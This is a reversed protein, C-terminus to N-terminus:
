KVFASTSVLNKSMLIDNMWGAIRNLREVRLEPHGSRSLDHSAGPFRVFQTKKGQRKLAIFLQEGQEIPCRLDEEGHLILLPTEIQNVYALPSHKWLRELDDWANGGIQDETFFYGIDSVGYFSIWNSISRQTVAAKFRNTHGVIWNTMFGGYSGGTVGLKDTDIYHYHATVYDVLEMVDMYDRGGYDGRCANVFQQGYGHSGRPNCYMVAYGQAALLQFEHMFSNVYMAHPGGHIEVIAPVKDGPQLGVPPIIWGQVKGGDSAEFWFSEPKSLELEDWLLANAKTLQVEDLSATDLRYLEGPMLDNAAVLIMEQDNNTKAFQIVERGGTTIVECGGEISFKGIHVSGETTILSYISAGDSSFVPSASPGMKMDTVASNGLHLDLEGMLCAVEGTNCNVTYLKTTTANFYSHDSALFAIKSGDPSYVPKGISYQSNTVRRHKNGDRDVIFLDNKLTLDPDVTEDDVLKTTYAISACDPSWAFDTVDYEGSTISTTCGNGIEYVFLHSRLTSDLLGAGDAKSRLRDVVVAQKGPKAPQEQEETDTASTSEGLKVKSSYLLMGGDPSWAYSNVGQEASTVACAEGGDAPIFWVQNKQDVKRLFALKSGDPSWSPASDQEGQTFATHSSGSVETVYIRSQYGSKDSKVTRSVYAIRDNVPNVTPDSIWTFRYLDEATIRRKSM